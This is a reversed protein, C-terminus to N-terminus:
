PRLQELPVNVQDEEHGLVLGRLSGDPNTGTVLVLQVRQRAPSAYADWRAVRVVSAPRPQPAPEAASAPPDAAGAAPGAYPDVSM